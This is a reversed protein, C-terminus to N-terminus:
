MKHKSMASMAITELWQNGILVMEAVMAFLLSVIKKVSLPQIKFEGIVITADTIKHLYAM